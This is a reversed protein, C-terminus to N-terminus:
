LLISNPIIQSHLPASHSSEGDSQPAIGFPCHLRIQFNSTQLPKMLSGHVMLYTEVVKYTINCNGSKGISILMVETFSICNENVSVWYNCQWSMQFVTTDFTWFGSLAIVVAIGKLVNMNM